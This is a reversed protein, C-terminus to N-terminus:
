FVNKVIICSTKLEFDLFSIEEHLKWFSWSEGIQKVPCSSHLNSMRASQESNLTWFLHFSLFKKLSVVKEEVDEVPSWSLERSLGALKMQLLWLSTDSLTHFCYSLSSKDWFTFKEECSDVPYKLLLKSLGAM